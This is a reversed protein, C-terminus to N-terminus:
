FRPAVGTKEVCDVDLAVPLGGRFRKPGAGPRERTRTRDDFRDGNM